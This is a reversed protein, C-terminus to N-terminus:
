QPGHKAIKQQINNTLLQTSFVSPELFKVFLITINYKHLLSLNHNIFENLHSYSM